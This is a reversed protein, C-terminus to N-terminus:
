AKDEKRLLEILGKNSLRTWKPPKSDLKKVAEILEKRSMASYEDKGNLERLEQWINYLLRDTKTNAQDPKIDFM